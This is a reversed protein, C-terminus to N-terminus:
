VMVTLPFQFFHLKQNVVMGYIHYLITRTLCTCKSTICIRTRLEAPYLLPRRLRPDPTRIGELVNIHHTHRLRSARWITARSASPELGEIWRKHASTRLTYRQKAARVGRPSHLLPSKEARNHAHPACGAKNVLLPSDGLPLACSKSEQM